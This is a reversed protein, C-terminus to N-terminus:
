RGKGISTKKSKNQSKSGKNIKFVINQHPDDRTIKFEHNQRYRYGKDYASRDSVPDSPDFYHAGMAADSFDIGLIRMSRGWLFNGADMINYVYMDSNNFIYFPGLDNNVKSVESGYGAKIAEPSLYSYWFDIKGANSNKKAWSLKQIYSWKYRDAVADQMYAAVNKASKIFLIPKDKYTSITKQMRKVDLEQDNFMYERFTEYENKTYDAPNLVKIGHAAGMILENSVMKIFMGDSNFYFVTDGKVDTNIIPNNGMSVYPSEWASRKPDLATWRGLRADYQRFETTYSNGVGQIEDDKLM